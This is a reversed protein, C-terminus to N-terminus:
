KKRRGSLLIGGVLLALLPGGISYAILGSLDHTKDGRLLKVKWNMRIRTSYIIDDEVSIIDLLPSRAIPIHYNKGYSIGNLLAIKLRQAKSDNPDHALAKDICELAEKFHKFQEHVHAMQLWYKNPHIKLAENCCNLAEEYQNYCLLIYMKTLWSDASSSNLELARNICTIADEFKRLAYLAKGM